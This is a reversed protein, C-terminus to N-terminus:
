EESGPGAARACRPGPGWGRARSTPGWETNGLSQVNKFLGRPGTPDRERVGDPMESCDRGTKNNTPYVLQIIFFLGKKRIRAGCLWGSWGPRNQALCSAGTLKLPVEQGPLARLCQHGLPASLLQCGREPRSATWWSISSATSDGSSLWIREVRGSCM